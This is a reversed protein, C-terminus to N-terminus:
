GDQELLLVVQYYKFVFCFSLMSTSFFHKSAIMSFRAFTFITFTTIKLQLSSYKLSSSFYVFRWLFNRRDHNNFKNNILCVPLCAFLSVSCLVQCKLSLHHLSLAMVKSKLSNHSSVTVSMYSPKLPVSGLLSHVAEGLVACHVVPLSMWHYEDWGNECVCVWQSVFGCLTNSDTIYLKM